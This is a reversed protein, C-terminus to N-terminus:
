NFVLPPAKKICSFHKCGCGGGTKRDHSATLVGTCNVFKGTSKWAIKGDSGTRKDYLMCAGVQFAKLSKDDKLLDAPRPFDACQKQEPKLYYTDPLYDVGTKGKLLKFSVLQEKKKNKLALTGTYGFSVDGCEYFGPNNGTHPKCLDDAPLASPSVFLAAAIAITKQVANM